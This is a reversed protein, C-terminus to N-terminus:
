KLADPPPIKNAWVRVCTLELEMSPPNTKLADKKGQEYVELMEYMNATTAYHSGILGMLGGAIVGTAIPYLFQKNLYQRL